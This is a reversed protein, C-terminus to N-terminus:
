ALRTIRVALAQDLVEFEAWVLLAGGCKVPVDQTHEHVTEVITGREMALLDRVRFSEVKVMADLRMPLRDLRTDAAEPPAEEGEQVMLGMTGAAPAAANQGPTGAAPVGAPQGPGAPNGATGGAPLASLVAVQPGANRQQDVEANM